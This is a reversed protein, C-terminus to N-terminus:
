AFEEKETDSASWTDSEYKEIMMVVERQERQEINRERYERRKVECM